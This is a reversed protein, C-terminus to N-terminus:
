GFCSEVFRIDTLADEIGTTVWEQVVSYKDLPFKKNM